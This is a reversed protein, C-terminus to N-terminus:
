TESLCSATCNMIDIFVQRKGLGLDYIPLLIISGTMSVKVFFPSGHDFDYGPHKVGTFSVPYEDLPRSPLVWPPNPSNESLFINRAVRSGRIM